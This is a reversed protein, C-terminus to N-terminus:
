LLMKVLIELGGRQSVQSELKGENRDRKGVVVVVESVVM